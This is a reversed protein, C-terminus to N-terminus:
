PPDLLGAAELKIRIGDGFVWVKSTQNDWWDLLDIHRSVSLNRLPSWIVEATDNAIIRGVGLRTVRDRGESCFVFGTNPKGFGWFRVEMHRNIYVNSLAQGLFVPRLLPKHASWLAQAVVEAAEVARGAEDLTPTRYEHEADNRPDAVIMPILRWPIGSGMRRKLVGLRDSFSPRDGLQVHLWDRRVFEDFLRDLARKAHGLAEVARRNRSDADTAADAEDIASRAWRLYTEVSEGPTTLENWLGDRVRGLSNLASIVDDIAVESWTVKPVLGPRHPDFEVEENGAM